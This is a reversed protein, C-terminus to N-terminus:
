FCCFYDYLYYLVSWSSSLHLVHTLTYSYHMQFFRMHSFHFDHLTTKAIILPFLEEIFEVFQCSIITYCFKIILGLGMRALPRM